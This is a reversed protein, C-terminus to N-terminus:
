RSLTVASLEALILDNLDRPMPAVGSRLLQLLKDRDDAPLREFESRADAAIARKEAASLLSLREHAGRVMSAQRAVEEIILPRAAANRPDTLMRVLSAYVDDRQASSLHVFGVDILGRLQQESVGYVGDLAPLQPRPAAPASAANVASEIASTAVQDRLMKLIFLTLPEAAQVPAVVVACFLTVFAARWYRQLISM